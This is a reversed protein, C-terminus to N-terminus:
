RVFHFRFGSSRVETSFSQSASVHVTVAISFLLTSTSVSFFKLVKVTYIDNVEPDGLPRKVTFNNHIHDGMLQYVSRIILNLEDRSIRGDGNVDYLNFIWNLKDVQTGRSVTSLWILFEKFTVAGSGDSDLTRFVQM